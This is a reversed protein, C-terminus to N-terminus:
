LLSLCAASGLIFLAYRLKTGLLGTDKNQINKAGEGEAERCNM